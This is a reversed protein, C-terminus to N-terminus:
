PMQSASRPAYAFVASARARPHAGPRKEKLTLPPRQSDQSPWPRTVTSIDKRGSTVTGQSAQPPPRKVASVFSARQPPSEGASVSRRVNQSAAFRKEAKGATAGKQESM